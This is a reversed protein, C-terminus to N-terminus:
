NYSFGHLDQTISQISTRMEPQKHFRKKFHQFFDDKQAVNKQQTNRGSIGICSHIHM